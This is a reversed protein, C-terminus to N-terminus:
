GLTRKSASCISASASEMREWPTRCGRRTDRPSVPYSSIAPSRLSRAARMAPSEVTGTTTFSAAAAPRSSIERTSFM